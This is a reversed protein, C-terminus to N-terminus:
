STHNEHSNTDCSGGSISTAQLFSKSVESKPAEKEIYTMNLLKKNQIPSPARQLPKPQMEQSRCASSHAHYVHHHVHKSTLSHFTKATKTSGFRLSGLPPWLTLHSGTLPARAVIEGQSGTNIMFLLGSSSFVAASLMRSIENAKLLKEMRREEGGGVLVVVVAM